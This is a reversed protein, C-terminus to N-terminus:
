GGGDTTPSSDSSVGYEARQAWLILLSPLVFVSLLFSVGLALAVIVGFSTLQPEPVLILLSFAGGSTIASGLLAGGTGTVAERLATVTDQGRELEQCFRDSLHINYDIGLGITISVLLATVMTLPQGVLYMGGFVFGLALAIPIVTIAGLTFSGHVLRYVISLAVLVGALALLLTWVIGDAIEGMEAENLTGPGVATVELDSGAAMDGAIDNMVAARDSGYTQTAPVQVLMSEYQGDDTRELVADAAEPEVEYLEDFVADVDRDPVGDDNTDAAELTAAFSENEAAAMEMVTLVSIVRVEGNQSLVITEDEESAREHGRELATMGEATAVGADDSTVLMTTYGTGGAALGEQDTQFSTQVYEMQEVLPSEHSEVAMPGPLETQWDPVDDPDFQQWAERDLDSFALGGALGAVLVLAIVAVPARRALTVGIELVGSLHRGKGLATKRRDYGFREWLGDASVKLAPVLTTFIVLSAVVGLTIAVGLDRILAVPSFQNSLFGIAATVTVLVFAVAVAATSRRLSDRIPDEPGRRERYRMFVHFGFDISLAAVLIPAIIATTQNLLGMWGMLGATWILAVVTGTFGIVVDTLDRYAFGLIVLLLALVAPIVLWAIESLLQQNLEAWVPQGDVYIAPSDYAEATEFLEQEIEFAPSGTEPNGASEEFEFTMRFAEANAEGPDATAPLYFAAFEENALVDAIAAGLEEDSASELAEYQAGLDADPDELLTMAVRNQVGDVGDAVLPEDVTESELVQKQYELATLLAERELADGDDAIVYVDTTVTSDADSEAAGYSAEIYELAGYVDTNGMSDDDIGEDVDGQDQVIGFGVGATLVIMVVIVLRNHTTVFDTFQRAVDRTM